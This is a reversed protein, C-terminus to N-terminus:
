DDHLILHTMSRRISIFDSKGMKLSFAESCNSPGRFLYLISLTFLIFKSRVVVPTGM